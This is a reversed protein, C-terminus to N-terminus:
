LGVSPVSLKGMCVNRNAGTASKANNFHGFLFENGFIAFFAAEKADGNVGLNSLPHMPKGLRQELRRRLLLNHYGGGTQYFEDVEFPIFKEVSLAVAYASYDTVTALIDEFALGMAQGRELLTQAYAYTYLERGTSKPPALPLFPDEEAMSHLLAESIAGSAGLTGDKDYTIEGNTHLKMLNDALVNAPGTDFALLSDIDGGAPLATLNAIGGTNILVRSKTESRCLLYDFFPALPAGQGGYAMDAVRFDSITIAGTIAAIDAGEGIQLTAGLEPSHYVTQGHSAVYDLSSLPLKAHAMADVVSNGILVGLWKNLACIDAVTSTTPSCAALLRQRDEETYNVTEFHLIDLKTNTGSGTIRCLAIDLGDLSTGSMVGACLRADKKVLKKLHEIMKPYGAIQLRM